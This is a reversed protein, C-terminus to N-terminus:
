EFLKLYPVFSYIRNRSKGSIETLWGKDRFFTVLSNASKPSLGCAAEVDKVKVVPHEFLHLLLTTAQHSRRGGKERITTKCSNKLNLIEALTQTAKQATEDVGILFYKVWHRLDNRQHVRAINDYYLLRDKEFFRSLYLLPQQLIHQSVLYLTILLRGIRGNGDLFPHITEFQYHAIGIRVLSPVQIQSNHLFNELDGMLENVHTHAPPIFAADKLTVGGIWNQSTRFEGPMKHEGRVGSLLIKHTKRLLRSSIPLQEMNGLAMNLARIYNKVEMWDNRREPYVEEEPLLAEDIHTQTGEIRSSVVAEKTVHLQIFLEMSPVLKAFANLEGLSHSAQEILTGLQPDKWTWQRNILEPVFYSYNYGSEYRGAVFAEIDLPDQM